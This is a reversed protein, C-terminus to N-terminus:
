PEVLDLRREILAIDRAIRDVGGSVNAYQPELLGLRQKIEILDTKMEAMDARIARLPELTWDARQASM